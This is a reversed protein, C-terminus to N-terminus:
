ILMRINPLLQGTARLNQNSRCLNIPARYVASHLSAYGSLMHTPACTNHELLDMAPPHRHEPCFQKHHLAAASSLESHLLVPLLKRTSISASLRLLMSHVTEATRETCAAHHSKPPQICNSPLAAARCPIATKSSLCLIVNDLQQHVPLDIQATDQEKHTPSSATQPNQEAFLPTSTPTPQQTCTHPLFHPLM